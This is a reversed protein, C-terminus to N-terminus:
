ISLKTKVKYCNLRKALLSCSSVLLKGLITLQLMIFFKVIYKECIWMKVWKLIYKLNFLSSAWSVVGTNMRSWLLLSLVIGIVFSFKGLQRGQYEDSM